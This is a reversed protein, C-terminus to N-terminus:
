FILSGWEEISILLLAGKYTKVAIVCTDEGLENNARIWIGKELDETVRQIALTYRRGDATIRYKPSDRVRRSGIRWTVEPIPNGSVNVTVSCPDDCRVLLSGTMKRDIRPPTKEAIEAVAFTRMAVPTLASHQLSFFVAPHPQRHQVTAM